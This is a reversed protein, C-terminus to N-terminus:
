RWVLTWEVKANEDNVIINRGDQLTEQLEKTKWRPQKEKATQQALLGQLRDWERATEPAGPKGVQAVNFEKQKWGPREATAPTPNSKDAKLQNQLLVSPKPLKAAVKPDLHYFVVGEGQVTVYTGTFTKAHSLSGFGSRNGGMERASFNSIFDSFREPPLLVIIVGGNEDQSTGTEIRVAAAPADSTTVGFDLVELVATKVDKNEWASPTARWTDAAMPDGKKANPRTAASLTAVVTFCALLLLKKLDM